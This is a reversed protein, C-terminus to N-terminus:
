EWKTRIEHSHRFEHSLAISGDMRKLVFREILVYCGFRKWGLSGGCEETRQVRMEKEKGKVWGVREQEWKIREVVALNLGVSTEEEDCNMSRFWLVGDAVFKDDVVAEEGGVVVKENHVVADVVVSSGGGYNNYEKEYILKWNQELTMEYFMYNRMEDKMTKPTGEKIFVFPCYWKGVVVPESKKNALPFNFDPHRARLAADVGDAQGLEFWPSDSFTLKWGGKRGLFGPAFGDPAVSKVKFKESGWPTLYRQHLSLEMQQFANHPDLQQPQTEPAYEYFCFAELEDEKCCTFAEGRDKGFPHVVYYKNSSLPQGLVPIFWVSHFHLDRDRAFGQVYYIELKKNQPLPLRRIRDSKKLGFCCKPQAEEDQVVIIGSSPGEPPPESLASPSKKYLSLPRTVYM